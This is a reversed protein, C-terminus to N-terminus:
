MNKSSASVAIVKKKRRKLETMSDTNFRTLRKDAKDDTTVNENLNVNFSASAALAIDGSKQEEEDEFIVQKQEFNTESKETNTSINNLESQETRQENKASTLNEQSEQSTKQTTSNEAMGAIGTITAAQGTVGEFVGTEIMVQGLVTQLLGLEHTFPNTMMATGASIMEIGLATNFSGLQTTGFGVLTTQQSVEKQNQLIQNFSPLNGELNDSVAKLNDTKSKSNNIAFQASETEASDKKQLASYQQVLNQSQAQASLATEETDTTEMIDNLQANQVTVTQIQALNQEHANKSNLAKVQAEKAANNSAAEAESINKNAQTIQSDYNKMESTARITTNAAYIANQASFETPVSYHQQKSENNQQTNEGDTIKNQNEANNEDTENTNNQNNTEESTTKDSKQKQLATNQETNTGTERNNLQGQTTEPSNTEPSNEDIRATINQEPNTTSREESQQQTTQQNNLEPNNFQEETSKSLTSESSNENIQSTKNQESNTEPAKNQPTQESDPNFSIGSSKAIEAAKKNEALGAIGSVGANIGTAGELIGSQLLVQGFVSMFIGLELTFPNSMLIAGEGMMEVGIVSHLAGIETTGAGVLITDSSVKEQESILEEFSMTNHNLNDSQIKLKATENQYNNIQQQASIFKQEDSDTNEAENEPQTVTAQELQKKATEAKKANDQTINAQSNVNENEKQIEQERNKLESTAENTTNAAEISNKASFETSVAYKNETPASEENQPNQATEPNNEANETNEKNDSEDNKIEPNQNTEQVKENTIDAQANAFETLTRNNNDYLGESIVSTTNDTDKAAEYTTDALTDENITAIINSSLHQTSKLSSKVLGNYPKEYEGLDKAAQQTDQTIKQNESVTTQVSDLDNLFEEIQSFNTKIESNFRNQETNLSKSLESFRKKESKTLTGAKNKENLNKWEEEYKKIKNKSNEIFNEKENKLTQVKQSSEKYQETIDELKADAQKSKAYQELAKTRLANLENPSDQKDPEFASENEANEAIVIYDTVDAQQQARAWLIVDKPVNYGSTEMAIIEEYSYQAWESDKIDYNVLYTQNHADSRNAYSECVMSKAYQLYREDTMKNGYKAKLIQAKEIVEDSYKARMDDDGVTVNTSGYTTYDSPKIGFDSHRPM